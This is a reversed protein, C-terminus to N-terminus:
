LAFVHILLFHLAVVAVWVLIACICFHLMSQRRVPPQLVAVNEFNKKKVWKNELDVFLKSGFDSSHEDIEVIIFGFKAELILIMQSGFNM